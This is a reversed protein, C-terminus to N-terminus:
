HALGLVRTLYSTLTGFSLGQPALGLLMRRALGLIMNRLWSTPSNDRNKKAPRASGSREGSGREPAALQATASGLSMQWGTFSPM